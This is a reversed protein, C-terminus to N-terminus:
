FCYGGFIGLWLGSVGLGKFEQAEHPYRPNVFEEHSFWEFGLYYALPGIVMTVTIFDVIMALKQKGIACLVGFQIAQYFDVFIALLISWITDDAITILIPNRTFIMIIYHRFTFFMIWECIDFVLCFNMIISKYRKAEDADGSGVQNGVLACIGCKFGLPIQFM